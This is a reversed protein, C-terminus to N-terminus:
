RTGGRRMSLSAARDREPSTHRISLLYAFNMRLSAILAERILSYGGLEITLGNGDPSPDGTEEVQPVPPDDSEIPKIPKGGLALATTPALTSVLLSLALVLSIGVRLKKMFTEGGSTPANPAGRGTRPHQGALLFIGGQPQPAAPMQDSLKKDIRDM